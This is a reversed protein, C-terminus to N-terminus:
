NCLIGLSIPLPKGQLIEKLIKVGSSIKQVEAGTEALGSVIGLVARYQEELKEKVKSSSQSLLSRFIVIILTM